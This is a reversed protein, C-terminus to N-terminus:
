FIIFNPLIHNTIFYSANVINTDRRAKILARIEAENWTNM